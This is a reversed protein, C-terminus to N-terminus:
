MTYSQISHFSYYYISYTTVFPPLFSAGIRGDLPPPASRGRPPPRSPPRPALRRRPAPAILGPRAKRDEEPDAVPVQMAGRLFGRGAAALRPASIQAFGIAACGPAQCCKGCSIIQAASFNALVSFLGCAVRMKWQLQM